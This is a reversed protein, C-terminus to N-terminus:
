KCTCGKWEELNSEKKLLRISKRTQMNQKLETNLNSSIKRDDKINTTVIENKCNKFIKRWEIKPQRM